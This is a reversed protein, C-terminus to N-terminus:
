LPLALLVGLEALSKLLLGILEVVQPVLKRSSVHQVVPKALGANRWRGCLYVVGDVRCERRRYWGSNDKFM